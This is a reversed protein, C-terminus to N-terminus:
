KLLEVAGSYVWTWKPNGDIFLLVGEREGVDVRGPSVTAAAVESWRADAVAHDLVDLLLYVREHARDWKGEKYWYLQTKISILGGVHAKLKDFFTM